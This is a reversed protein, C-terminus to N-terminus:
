RQVLARLTHRLAAAQRSADHLLLLVERDNDGPDDALVDSIHQQVADVMALAVRTPEGGARLRELFDTM